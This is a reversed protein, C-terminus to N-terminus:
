GREVVEVCSGTPMKEVVFHIPFNDKFVPLHSVVIVKSFDKQIAYIADMIRSLGDEDQSGFGEDIILTQLATGARRALLKSIAIRLSFDIRFAEGGSFMEYPRIGVVDSIKIDLTEKVGGKKLDRLSEIFVQAQNDSLRSLILNAENEIEPIAEEILLAQIGDKGFVGALTQYQDIQVNLDKLKKENEKNKKKLLDIRKLESEFSGFRQLHDSKQQELVDQEKKTKELKLELEKKLKSDPLIKKIEKQLLVINNKYEKLISILKTIKEKREKQLNIEQKFDESEVLISEVKKLKSSLSQHEKSDYKLKEKQKVLAQIQDNIVVLFEDKELQVSIEKEAKSLDLAFTKINKQLKTKQKDLDKIENGVGEIEKKMESSTKSFDNSKSILKKYEDDQITLKKVEDNQSLLLEKLKKILLTIRKLRNKYFTEEKLFKQSLFQKRRVTLLQECLPCSPNREQLMVRKKNEFESLTSKTANGYHILVQYYNRRKEFQNLIKSYNKKFEDINQLKSEIHKLDSNFVSMKVELKKKEQAKQGLVFVLNKFALNNRDLELKTDYIKEDADKKRQEFEKQYQIQLELLKEQILLSQKQSDRFKKESTLLNNKENEIEGINPLGFSKKNVKRWQFILKKLQEAEVDYKNKLQSLEDSILQCKQKKNLYEFQEKQLGTLDNQIQSFKGKIKELDKKCCELSQLVDKEKEIELDAQQTLHSFVKKEEQHKKCYELAKQRLLDYKSLGLINALIQKRERPTKQSFENAQGQRLFATNSFTEFDLGLLNEIKSQTQRLTKESLPIFGEKDKSFLEFDLSSIDRGYTKFFERRVRYTDKNFEFEVSVMMQTQGLHLLGVDAKATGSVKRAQGWICWTIADLLASKGHGNKGSFCILHYDKFDIIQINPGYSLFNKIEVKLPIM